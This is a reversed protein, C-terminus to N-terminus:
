ATCARVLTSKAEATETKESREVVAKVEKGEIFVCDGEFVAGYTLSLSPSDIKGRIKAHSDLKVSKNASIDGNVTGDILATGVEIHGHIEANELIVLTGDISHIDGTLYGCFQLIGEFNIECNSRDLSELYFQASSGEQGSIAATEIDERINEVARLWAGFHAELDFV